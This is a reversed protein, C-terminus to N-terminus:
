GDADRRRGKRRYPFSVRETTLALVNETAPSSICASCCFLLDSLKESSEEIEPLNLLCAHNGIGIRTDACHVALSEPPAGSAGEIYVSGTAGSQNLWGEAAVSLTNAFM